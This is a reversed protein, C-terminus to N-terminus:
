VQFIANKKPDSWMSLGLFVRDKEPVPERQAISGLPLGTLRHLAIAFIHCQGSTYIAEEDESVSAKVRPM